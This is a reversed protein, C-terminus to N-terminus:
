KIKSVFELISLAIRDQSKDETLLKADGPNSINGLEIGITPVASNKLIYHTEYTVESVKMESSRSLVANLITAFKLSASQNPADKAVSLKVGRINADKSKGVHLSLVLAPKLKNIMAARDKLEVFADTARTFHIIVNKDSNLRQIKTAIAMTIDKEVTSDSAAGVDKGGHGADIVVHIEANGITTFSILAFTAIAALLLLFRTQKKMTEIKPKITVLTATKKISLINNTKSCTQFAM